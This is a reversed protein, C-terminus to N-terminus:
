KKEPGGIPGSNFVPLWRKGAHIEVTFEAGKKSLATNIIENLL